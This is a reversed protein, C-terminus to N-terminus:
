DFFFTHHELDTGAVVEVWAEEPDATSHYEHRHDLAVGCKQRGEKILRMWRSAWLGLDQKHGRSRSEEGVFWLKEDGTKTGHM